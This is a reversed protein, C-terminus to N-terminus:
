CQKSESVTWYFLMGNIMGNFDLLIGNFDRGNADMLIWYVRILMWYVRMIMGQLDWEFGV